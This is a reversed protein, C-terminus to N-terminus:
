VFLFQGREKRKPLIILICLTYIYIYIYIYDYIYRIYMIGSQLGVGNNKSHTLCSLRRTRLLPEM